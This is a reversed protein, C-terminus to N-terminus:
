IELIDLQNKASVKKQDIFSVILHKAEKELSFTLSDNKRSVQHITMDKLALKLEELPFDLFAKKPIFLQLVATYEKYRMDQIEFEISDRIYYEFAALGKDLTLEPYLIHYNMMRESEDDIWPFYALANLGGKMRNVRYQNTLFNYTRTVFYSADSKETPQFQDNQYQVTQIVTDEFAFEIYPQKLLGVGNTYSLQSIGLQDRFLQQFKLNAEEQWQFPDKHLEFFVGSGLEAVREVQQIDLLLQRAFLKKYPEGLFLWWCATLCVGKYFVDYGPFVNCDVVIDGNLGKMMPLANTEDATEFSRRKSLESTNHYLYEEYSRIYAFFGHEILRSKLYDLYVNEWYYFNKKNIICKEFLTDGLVHITTEEEANKLQLWFDEKMGFDAIVQQLLRLDFAQEKGNILMMDPELLLRSMILWDNIKSQIDVQKLDYLQSVSYLKQNKEM